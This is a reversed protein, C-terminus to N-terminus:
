FYSIKAFKQFFYKVSVINECTKLIQSKFNEFKHFGPDPGQIFDNKGSFKHSEMFM